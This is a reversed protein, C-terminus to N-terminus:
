FKPFIAHFHIVDATVGAPYAGAGVEAGTDQVIALMKGNNRTSGPVFSYSYDGKGHIEVYDPPRSSKITWDNFNLTDGNTAYTSSPTLSGVVHLKKLDMWHKSVTVALAM